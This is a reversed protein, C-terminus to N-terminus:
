KGDGYSEYALYEGFDDQHWCPTGWRGGHELSGEYDIELSSGESHGMMGLRRNRSYLFLSVSARPEGDHSMDAGLVGEWCLQFGNGQPPASRIGCSFTWGEDELFCDDLPSVIEIPEQLLTSLEAVLRTIVSM